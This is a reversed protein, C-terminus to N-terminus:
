MGGGGEEGRGEAKRGTAQLKTLSPERGKRTRSLVQGEIAKRGETSM